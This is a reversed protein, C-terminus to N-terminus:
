PKLYYHLTTRDKNILKCGRSYSYQNDRLWRVYQNVAGYERTDRNRRIHRIGRITDPSTKFEFCARSLAAKAEDEDWMKSNNIMRFNSHTVGNMKEWDVDLRDGYKLFYDQQYQKIQQIKEAKM